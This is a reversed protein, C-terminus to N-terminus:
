YRQVFRIGACAKETRKQWVNQANNTSNCAFSINFNARDPLLSSDLYIFLYIGFTRMGSPSRSRLWFTILQKKRTGGFGGMM